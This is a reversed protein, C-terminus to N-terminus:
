PSPVEGAFLRQLGALALTRAVAPSPRTAVLAIGASRAARDLALLLQLAASDLLDVACWDILIEGGRECLACVEQHLARARNVDVRGTLVLRHSLEPSGDGDRAMDPRDAAGPDPQAQARM